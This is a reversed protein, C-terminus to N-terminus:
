RAFPIMLVLSVIDNHSWGPYECDPFEGAEWRQIFEDGGIGLRVRVQEDFMARGDDTSLEVIPPLEVDEIAFGADIKRAMAM